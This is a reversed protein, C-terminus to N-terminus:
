GFGGRDVVYRMVDTVVDMDLHEAWANVLEKMYDWDEDSLASDKETWTGSFVELVEEARYLVEQDVLEPVFYESLEDAMDRPVPIMSAMADRLDETIGATNDWGRNKRIRKWSRTLDGDMTRMTSRTM